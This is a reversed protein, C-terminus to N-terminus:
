LKNNNMIQTLETKSIGMGLGTTTTIQSEIHKFWDGISQFVTLNNRTETQFGFRRLTDEANTPLMEDVEKQTVEWFNSDLM